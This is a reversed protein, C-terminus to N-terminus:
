VASVLIKSVAKHISTKFDEKAFKRKRVIFMEEEFLLLFINIELFDQYELLSPSFKRLIKFISFLVLDTNRFRM